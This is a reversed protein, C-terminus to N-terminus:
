KNSHIFKRSCRVKFRVKFQLYSCGRTSFFLSKSAPIMWVLTLIKERLIDRSFLIWYDKMKGHCQSWRFNSPQLEPKWCEAAVLNMELKLSQIVTLWLCNCACQRKWLAQLKTECQNKGWYAMCFAMLM